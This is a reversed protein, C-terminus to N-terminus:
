RRARRAIVERNLWGPWRPWTSRRQIDLLEEAVQRPQEPSAVFGARAQVSRLRDILGALDDAGRTLAVTWREAAAISLARGEVTYAAVYEGAAVDISELETAAESLSAFAYLEGDRGFVIVLDDFDSVEGHDWLLAVGSIREYAHCSPDNALASLPM